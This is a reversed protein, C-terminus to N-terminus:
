KCLISFDGKEYVAKDYHNEKWLWEGKEYQAGM